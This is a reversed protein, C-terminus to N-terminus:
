LDCVTTGAAQTRTAGLRGEAHDGPTELRCGVGAGRLETSTAVPRRATDRTGSHVSFACALAAKTLLKGPVQPLAVGRVRFIRVM